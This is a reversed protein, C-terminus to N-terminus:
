LPRRNCGIRLKRITLAHVGQKDFKRGKGSLAGIVEIVISKQAQLSRHRQVRFGSIDDFSCASQTFQQVGIWAPALTLAAAQAHNIVPPVASPLEPQEGQVVLVLQIFSKLALSFFASL